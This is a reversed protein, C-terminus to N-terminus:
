LEVINERIAPLIQSLLKSLCRLRILTDNYFSSKRYFCTDFLFKIPSLFIGIDISHRFWARTMKEGHLISRNYMMSFYMEHRNLLIHYGYVFNVNIQSIRLTSIVFEKRNWMFVHM